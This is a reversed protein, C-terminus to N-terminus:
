NKRFFDGFLEVPPSSAATKDSVSFIQTWNHSSICANSTWASWFSDCRPRKSLASSALEADEASRIAASRVICPTHSGNLLQISDSSLEFAKIVTALSRFMYRQHLTPNLSKPVSMIMTLPSMIMTLPTYQVTHVAHNMVNDFSYNSKPWKKQYKPSCMHHHLQKSRCQSTVTCVM